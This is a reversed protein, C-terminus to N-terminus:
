NDLPTVSRLTWYDRGEVNVKIFECSFYNPWDNTYSLIVPITIKYEFQGVDAEYIAKASNHGDHM